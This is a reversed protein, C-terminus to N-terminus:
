MVTERRVYAAVLPVIIQYDDGEREIIERRLLTDIAEKLAFEDREIRRAAKSSIREGTVRAMAALVRRATEGGTQTRWLDIFYNEGRKLVLPIVAEVDEKTIYSEPPMRRATNMREVLLACMLQVLYPQCHTMEIIRDVADSRYIEPFGVVPREILERADTEELFSIPLTTTTILASAWHPPLEKIQHSGSLLVAVQQRHQVINRITSLIRKDLRGQSIAGELAEFEDLCLLLTRDGLATETQDLWRGFAPFPDDALAAREIIPLRVGRHRMAEERVEDAIGRLMGAVNKAGGLKESQLDLFAPIMRSGLRRPLQMLASSKGARRQGYLVFTTREGTNGGLGSELQRFLSERGKFPLATDSRDGPKIPRGDKIYVQPIPEEIRQQRQAEKLATGIITSWRALAKGLEGPRKRLTELMDAAETLRRVRNTASDSESASAVEQSIDRMRPLLTQLSAPLVTEDTLWDLGRGFVALAPLSRVLLAQEQALRALARQAERKRFPHAAVRAIAERGLAPDTRNLSVLLGVLGPLPLIITEDWNVPSIRWLAAGLKPRFRTIAWSVFSLISQFPYLYVHTITLVSAVGVAVGFAVGGAVGKWNVNLGMASFVGAVIPCWLLAVIAQLALRGLKRRFAADRLKHRAQLLAYDRPLDPAFAAVEDAFATPQFYLRLPLLLGGIIIDRM